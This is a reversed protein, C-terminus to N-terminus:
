GSKEDKKKIKKPPLAGISKLMGNSASTLVSFKPHTYGATTKIDEHGLILQVTRIDAGNELALTAFTHRCEHVDLKRFKPNDKIFNRFFSDYSRNFNRPNMIGGSESSFIYLGRHPLWEIQEKVLAPLPVTRLSRKTKALYEETKPIMKGTEEDHDLYVARNVKIKNGEVDNWMLGLLEGRRLGTCLLTIIAAGTLLGARKVLANQAISKHYTKAYECIAAAEQASFAQKPNQRVEPTKLKRAPNQSCLNNEQAEIFTAKILGAMKDTYSKSAKSSFANLFAQLEIPAIGSVKKGRLEAPFDAALLELQHYSTDKMTGKRCNLLYKDLWAGLTIDESITMLADQQEKAWADYKAKAAAKAGKGSASFAKRKDENTVIYRWIETVHGTKKNKRKECVYTGEGDARKRM